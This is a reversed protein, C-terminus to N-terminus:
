FRHTSTTGTVLRSLNAVTALEFLDSILINSDFQQNVRAVIRGALLSDGGLDFFDDHVGVLDIELVESWIRALRDEVPPRPVTFAVDLEPRSLPPDPLSRRDIKGNATLPLASLIVFISPIMYPPLRESLLDRLQTATAGSESRLVLYAVLRKDGSSSGRAVIAAEKIWSVRSLMGEIEDTNVRHGRIKVQFDKRGLHELRGDACMRGIDGTLYVRGRADGASQLFVTRTLEPKRWYGPSLFESRIAIEGSEGPEVVAGRDDLLLIDADAVPYGVPVIDGSIVANKNLFNQCFTIAETCSLANVLICEPSFHQQFQKFDDKAVQESGLRILRLNPFTTNNSLTQAFHRFVTASSHYITINNELLWSGLQGVGRQQVEFPLLCAGNLLASYLNALGGTSSPARLLTMRDEKCYHSSNTVVMVHHLVNRHLDIVGKPENTSGSTYIIHALDTPGVSLPPNENGTEVGIEDVNIIKYATSDFSQAMGLHNSATVIVTAQSDTIIARARAVPLGADVPVSIKGAKLIGLVGAIASADNAVILAVPERGQGRTELIRTAIRNALRNVDDYTLTETDTIVAPRDPNQQVKREFAASLSQEIEERRFERFSNAPRSDCCSATPLAM